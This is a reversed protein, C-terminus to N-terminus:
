RCAPGAPRSGQAATSNGRPFARCWRLYALLDDPDLPHDGDGYMTHLRFRVYAADPVPLYPAHRWWRRPTMRWLQALATAWLSPHRVLALAVAVVSRVRASM